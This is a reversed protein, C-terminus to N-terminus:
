TSNLIQYVEYYRVHMCKGKKIRQVIGSLPSDKASPLVEYLITELHKNGDDEDDIKTIMGNILIDAGKQGGITMASQKTIRNIIGKTFLGIALSNLAPESTALIEVMKDEHSRLINSRTGEAM